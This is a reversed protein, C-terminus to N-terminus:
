TPSTWLRGVSWPRNGNLNVAGCPWACPAFSSHIFMTCTFYVYNVPQTCVSFCRVRTLAFLCVKRNRPINTTPSYIPTCVQLMVYLKKLVDWLEARSMDGRKRNAVKKFWKQVVAAAKFEDLNHSGYKQSGYISGTVPVGDTSDLSESDLEPMVRPDTFIKRIGPKGRAKVWGAELLGCLHNYFNLKQQRGLDTMGIQTVWNGEGVTDYRVALDLRHWTGISEANLRKIWAFFPHSESYVWQQGMSVLIFRTEPLFLDAFIRLEMNALLSTGSFLYKEEDTGIKPCLLFKRGIGHHQLRDKVHEISNASFNGVYLHGGCPGRFGTGIWKWDSNTVQRLDERTTKENITCQGLMVSDSGPQQPEMLKLGSCPFQIVAMDVDWGSINHSMTAYPGADIGLLGLQHRDIVDRRLREMWAAGSKDDSPDQAEVDTDTDSGVGGSEESVDDDDDRNDSPESTPGCGMVVQLKQQVDHCGPNKLAAMLIKKTEQPIALQGFAAKLAKVM